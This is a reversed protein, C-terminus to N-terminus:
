SRSLRTSRSRKRPSSTRTSTPEFLTKLSDIYSKLRDIKGRATSDDPFFARLKATFPFPAEEIVIGGSGEELVFNGLGEVIAEGEARLTVEMWRIGGELQVCNHEKFTASMLTSFPLPQVM